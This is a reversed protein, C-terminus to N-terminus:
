RQEEGDPAVGRSVAVAAGTLAVLYWMIVAQSLVNATLSLVVFAVVVGVQGHAIGAAIPTCAAARARRAAGALAGLLALYALAGVAGLEVVVRVYDNHPPVGEDFSAAVMDLGIGTLPNAVALGIAEQWYELRWSLSNAPEGSARDGEDLDAFRGTASPVMALVGVIGVAVAVLMRRDRRSVGVALIGAVAAIWAGRAYTAFLSLGAGVLVVTLARRWWGTVTPAVAVGMVLLLTCFLAFPNPHLFTGRVREFGGISRAGAGGVLQVLAVALPAVAAVYVAVLLRRLSAADRVLRDTLVLIAATSGVRALELAADGRHDAGLVSLASAAVFALMAQTVPALPPADDDRTAALVVIALLTIALGLVVSPEAAGTREGLKTADLSARLALAVFLAAETRVLALAGFAAAVVGLPVVLTRRPAGDVLGVATQAAVLALAVVAFVAAVRAWPPLRPAVVTATVM